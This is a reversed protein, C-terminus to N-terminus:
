LTDMENKYLDIVGDALEDVDRILTYGDDGFMRAMGDHNLDNGVGVGIVKVGDDRLNETVQRAEKQMAEKGATRGTYENSKYHTDTLSGVLPNGDAIVIMVDDRATTPGFGAMDAARLMGAGVPDQGRPYANNLHDWQFQEDPRTVVPTNVDDISFSSPNVWADFGLCSFDDGIQEAAKALAGIAARAAEMRGNQRMSGSMDVVVSVNRSASERNKENSKFLRERARRDGSAKRAAARVNLRKGSRRAKAGRGNKIRRFEAAIEDIVGSAELKERTKEAARGTESDREDTYKELREEPMKFDDGLRGLDKKRATEARDTWTEMDAPEDDVDDLEPWADDKEPGDSIM